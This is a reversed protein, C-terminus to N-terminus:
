QARSGSALWWLLGFLVLTWLHFCVLGRIEKREEETEAFKRPFGLYLVLQSGLMLLLCLRGWLQDQLLGIITALNMGLYFLDAILLHWPMETLRYKGQGLLNGLHVMAGFAFCGCLVRQFWLFFLDM